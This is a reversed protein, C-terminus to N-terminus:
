LFRRLEVTWGDVAFGEIRVREGRRLSLFRDRTARSANYPLTVTLISGRGRDIEFVGRREDVRVVVGDYRQVRAAPGEDDGQVSQQVEIYDTYTEGYRDDVRMRVLDGRELDGVNYRRQRYVVQTRGDYTVWESQGWGAEIQIEQRRTDVQRVEGRLERPNNYPDVTALVEALEGLSACSALTLSAIFMGGVRGVARKIPWMHGGRQEYNGAWADGSKELAPSAISIGPM